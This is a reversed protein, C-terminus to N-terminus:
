YKKEPFQAQFVENGLALLWVGSLKLDMFDDPGGEDVEREFEM